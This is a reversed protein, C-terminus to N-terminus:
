GYIAFGGPPVKLRTASGNRAEPEPSLTGVLGPDTAYLCKLPRGGPGHRVADLTVFAEHEREEDTNLLCLFEDGDLLRSWAVMGRYPEEGPEPFWFNKGDLSIERPFQRGRRLVAYRKRLALLKAIEGYLRGSEDFCHRGRSRFPGFEGGFMAERIYVDSAVPADEGPAHGDFGQETGYYLCPIGLTTTQFAVARLIGAEARAPDDYDAALRGKVDKGVQDHDDFFTVVRDKWWVPDPHCEGERRSNVFFGFYDAPRSVGCTVRRIQMPIEGIGLASNLGSDLLKQCIQDRGGVIEGVIFFNRKGLSRAFEHIERVFYAVAGSPMHKVTDLRFGDLDAAAIWYKYCATLAVLAPSPRFDGAGGEGLRFDKFAFFDGDEYEPHADWDGIAGKRQFCDPDQLEAPWIAGDPYADPHKLLDVPGFPLPAAGTADRFGVVPYPEPRFALPGDGEGEYAFVDGAHNVIIDLIVYMGMRHATTTLARLDDATGFRPDVDLFNQTGYGHYCDDCDARQRLVPSVWLATAGLRQLYGLKTTLGRLNGGRWTEGARAWRAADDPTRTANEADRDRHFPPTEGSSIMEGTNDLYCAEEGDSFRDVLLFYLTQDEWATPSPHFPGQTLASWDIEALTKM